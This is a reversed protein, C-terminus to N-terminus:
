ASALVPKLEIRDPPDSFRLKLVGDIKKQLARRRLLIRAYLPVRRYAPYWKVIDGEYAFIIKPPLHQNVMFQNGIAMMGLEPGFRLKHDDDFRMRYFAPAIEGLRDRFWLHTIFYASWGSLGLAYQPACVLGGDQLVPSHPKPRLHSTCNIFYAGEPVSRERLERGERWVMRTGDVDVLHGRLVEDVGARIEYREPLSAMGARFNGGFGWVTHFYGRRELQQAVEVENQGDFLECMTLFVDPNLVGGYYRRSGRPCINDRTLFYMGSGAIVTIRRRRSGRQQILYRACDMATKGSGVIYVPAESELFERSTLVPDSVAVSRVRASSLSLPALVEIDVGTAILLRKARIQVPKGGDAVPTAVVDVRGAHSQHGTYVHGFLTQIDLQEASVSPVSGLHDLVERRTALHWPDRELTWPQDGATFMRYPQHLRVFDYQDRWQGGWGDRKDIVIVRAGRALYKAAANLGNLAAYGGGVICLECDLATTAQM